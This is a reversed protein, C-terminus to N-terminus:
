KQAPISFMLAISRISRFINVYFCSPLASDAEGKGTRTNFSIVWRRWKKRFCQWYNECYLKKMRKESVSITEWVLDHTECFLLFYILSNSHVTSLPIVGALWMWATAFQNAVTTCGVFHYGGRLGRGARFKKTLEANGRQLNLSRRPQTLEAPRFLM